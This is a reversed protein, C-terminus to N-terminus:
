LALVGDQLYSHLRSGLYGVLFGTGASIIVNLPYHAGMYVRSYTVILSWIILLWKIVRFEKPVSFLLFATIFFMLFPRLAFNLSDSGCAEGLLRVMGSLDPNLCPREMDFIYSFLLPLWQFCVFLEALFVIAVLIMKAKSHYSIQRGFHRMGLFLVLLIIPIYVFLNSAFSMLSDFVESHAGNMKLFLKENIDAASEM